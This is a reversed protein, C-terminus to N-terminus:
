LGVHLLVDALLVVAIHWLTGASRMVGFYPLSRAM